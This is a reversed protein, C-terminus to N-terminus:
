RRRRSGVVGVVGLLALTGPSPICCGGLTIVSGEHWTADIEGEVDDFTEYFSLTIYGDTDVILNPLGADTIDILGGSNYNMNSVSFGDASGPTIDLDGQSGQFRISAESAWSGNFTTLTVDWGISTIRADQGVFIRLSENNLSGELDWHSIGSIDVALTSTATGAPEAGADIAGNFSSFGATALGASAALVFLGIGRM